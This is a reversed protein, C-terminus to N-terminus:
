LDAVFGPLQPADIIGQQYAKWLDEWQEKPYGERTAWEEFQQRMAQPDIDM